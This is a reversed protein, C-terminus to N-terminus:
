YLCGIHLHVVAKPKFCSVCVGDGTKIMKINVSATIAMIITNIGIMIHGWNDALMLYFIKHDAYIWMAIIAVNFYLALAIRYILYIARDIPWQFLLFVNNINRYSLNTSINLDASPVCM